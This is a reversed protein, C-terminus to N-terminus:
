QFYSSLQTVSVSTKSTDSSNATDNTDVVQIVQLVQIVQSLSIHYKLYRVLQSRSIDNSIM